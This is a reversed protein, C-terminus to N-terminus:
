SGGTDLRQKRPQSESTPPTDSQTQIEPAFRNPQKQRSLSPAFLSIEPSFNPAAEQQVFEKDSTDLPNRALIPTQFTKKYIRNEFQLCDHVFTLDFVWFGTSNQQSM